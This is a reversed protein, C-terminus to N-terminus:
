AEVVNPYFDLCFRIPKKCEPYPCPYGFGLGKSEIDELCTQCLTHGCGLFKWSENFTRHCLACKLINRRMQEDIQRRLYQIQLQLQKKDKQLQEKDKQLQEKDKQLQEKDKQLQEKDKQLQEKGKKLQHSEQNLRKNEQELAEYPETVEKVFRKIRSQFDVVNSDERKRKGVTPASIAHEMTDQYDRYAYDPRGRRRRRPRTHHNEEDDSIEIVPSPSGAAECVEEGSLVRESPLQRPPSDEDFPITSPPSAPSELLIDTPAETAIGEEVGYIFGLAHWNDIQAPTPPQQPQQTEM